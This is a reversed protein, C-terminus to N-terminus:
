VLLVGLGLSAQLLLLQQLVSTSLGGCSRM